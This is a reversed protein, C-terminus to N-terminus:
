SLIILAEWSGLDFDLDIHLSAYILSSKKRCCPTNWASDSNPKLKERWEGKAHKMNAQRIIVSASPAVRQHSKKLQCRIWIIVEGHCM